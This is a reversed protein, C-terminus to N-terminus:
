WRAMNQINNIAKLLQLLSMTMYLSNLFHRESKANTFLQRHNIYELVNLCRGKLRISTMPLAIKILFRRICLKFPNVPDSQCLQIRLIFSTKISGIVEAATCHKHLGRIIHQWWQFGLSASTSWTREMTQPLPLMVLKYAHECFQSFQRNAKGHRDMWGDMWGDVHFSEAAVPCTNMFHPIQINKLLWTENFDSLIVAWAWSFM